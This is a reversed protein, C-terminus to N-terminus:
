LNSNIKAMGIVRYTRTAFPHYYAIVTYTNETEFFSGEIFRTTVQDKEKTAFTYNYFGQKLQIATEFQQTNKNFKLANEEHLAYNNFGGYVYIKDSFEVSQTDLAFHVWTYDSETEQDYAHINQIHFNGNIDPAYTYPLAARFIAPYLHTHYGNERLSVQAINVNTATINKSDFHLFENRGFFSTEDNYQYSIENKKYFQPRLNKRTFNWDENQL